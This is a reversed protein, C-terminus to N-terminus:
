MMGMPGVMLRDAVKKQEDSFSAYLPELAGMLTKLSALHASLMAEQRDLRAPLTAASDGQMMQEYMGNMSKATARLADAFQNWQPAQADTIKLETKLSALRGEVHSTMMGERASMMTMMGRMMSMMQADNRMMGAQGSNEMMGRPMREGPGAKPSSKPASAPPATQAFVSPTAGVSGLGLALAIALPVRLYTSM